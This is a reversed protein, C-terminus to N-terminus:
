KEISNEEHKELVGTLKKSTKYKPENSNDKNESVIKEIEKRLKEAQAERFNNAIEKYKKSNYMHMTDFKEGDLEVRLFYKKGLLSLNEYFEINTANEINVLKEKKSDIVYCGLGELKKLVEKLHQSAALKGISVTQEIREPVGNIIFEVFFEKDFGTKEHNVRVYDINEHDFEKNFYKVKM